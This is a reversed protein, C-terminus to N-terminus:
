FREWLGLVMGLEGRDAGAVTGVVGLQIWLRSALRQAASLQLKSLGYRRYAGAVEGTSLISFSQLMLLGGDWPEIGAGLDFLLEDAPAGGRWRWGAETGAFGHHGLVDFGEGFMLRVEARGNL